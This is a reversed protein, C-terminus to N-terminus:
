ETESEGTEVEISVHDGEDARTPSETGRLEYEGPDVPEGNVTIRVTTEPDADAYTEGEITVSTADPDITMDLTSAAYEVTIGRAHAHWVSAGDQGVFYFHRDQELYQQQNLDIPDGDVTVEMTGHYHVSGHDYPTSPGGAANLLGVVLIAGGLVAVLLVDLRIRGGDGAQHRAVRQSDIPGLEDGHHEHLHSLYATEERFGADCYECEPM